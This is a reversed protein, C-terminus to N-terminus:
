INSKQGTYEPSCNLAEQGEQKNQVEDMWGDRQVYEITQYNMLHLKEFGKTGKIFEELAENLIYQYYPDKERVELFLCLCVSLEHIGTLQFLRTKIRERCEEYKDCSKM